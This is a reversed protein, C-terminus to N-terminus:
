LWIMKRKRAYQLLMARKVVIFVRLPLAHIPTAKYAPRPDKAKRRYEMLSDAAIASGAHALTLTCVAFPVSRKTEIKLCQM